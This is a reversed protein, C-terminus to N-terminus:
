LVFAGVVAAALVVIWAPVRGSLLALFGVVAVLLTQVSTIGQVIVPDYLAAALLGVVAANVGALIARARPLAALRDWVPLAAVLLLAGPLFIAILALAAGVLPHIGTTVTGLYAAFTFLPGPVAQAAAYGVLFAQEDVMGAQVMAGDLLPLVVHGGGFVLAGARYTADTIQAAVSNSLALLPLGILLVCFLSLSVLSTRLTLIGTSRGAPPRRHRQVDDRLAGDRLAGDRLLWLGLAAGVLIAGLQGLSGPVLIACVAALLAMALRRLDPTLARAMALVAHAVIAVVVAKLGTLWGGEVSDGLTLVGYGVGVLVVASPMTFGLWAALMGPLGARRLGLGMGVQSSTPGPLFQCLAVLDAYVTDPLWRRDTVFATRFYALHAAPGGFSTLGLVLFAWLVERFTGDARVPPPSHANVPGDDGTFTFM